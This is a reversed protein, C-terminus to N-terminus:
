FLIIYMSCWSENANTSHKQQQTTPASSKAIFKQWKRPIQGQTWKMSILFRKRKKERESEWPITVKKHRESQKQKIPHRLWTVQNLHLAQHPHYNMIIAKWVGETCDIPCRMHKGLGVSYEMHDIWGLPCGCKGNVDKLHM